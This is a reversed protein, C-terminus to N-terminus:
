RCEDMKSWHSIYLLSTCTETIRLFTLIKEMTNYKANSEVSCLQYLKVNKKFITYYLKHIQLCYVYM